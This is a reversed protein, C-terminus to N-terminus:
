KKNNRWQKQKEKWFNDRAKTSSKVKKIKKKPKPRNKTSPLEVQSQQLDINGCKIYEAIIPIDLAKALVFLEQTKLFQIIFVPTKNAVNSNYELIRWDKLDFKYSQADTSKLQAIIFENQGDEKEIWGSGSGQTPELGLEDMVEKENKFYFRGSRKM